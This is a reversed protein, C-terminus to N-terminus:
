NGAKNKILDVIEELTDPLPATVNNFGNMEGISGPCFRQECEGTDYNLHLGDKNFTPTIILYTNEIQIVVELRLGYPGSVKVPQGMCDELDVTLASIATSVWSTSKNRSVERNYIKEYKNM